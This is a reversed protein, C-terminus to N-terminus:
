EEDEEDLPIPVTLGKTKAIRREFDETLQRELEAIHSAPLAPGGFAFSGASQLVRATAQDPSGTTMARGREGKRNTQGFDFYQPYVRPAVGVYQEFTVMGDVYGRQEPEFVLVDDHLERALSKAYPHIYLVRKIGSGIIHRTCNHCPFTTCVITADDISIGRRAAYTIADMEAHISRGFETISSFRTTDVDRLFSDLKSEPIDYDGSKLKSLRRKNMWGTRSMQALLERAVRRQWLTNSDLPPQRAFDRGDPQDPSWYLGGIGSPVDNTGVALLEGQRTVIAAGVQRGMEASRLGATFAHYMAQEDRYPPVFADGFILRVMRPVVESLSAESRGDIFFDALSFTDRVGQGYAVASDMYDRQMDELAESDFRRSTVNAWREWRNELNHHRQSDPVHLAVLIFRPGYLKRLAEVEEKRKLSRVLWAVRGDTSSSRARKSAILFVALHAAIENLRTKERLADGMNQLRRTANPAERQFDAEGLLAPFYRSLHVLRLDYGWNGMSERLLAEFTETEAGAGYVLGFVLEEAGIPQNTTPPATM